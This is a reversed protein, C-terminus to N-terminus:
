TLVAGSGARPRSLAPHACVCPLLCWALARCTFSCLPLFPFSWLPLPLWVAGQWTSLGRASPVAQLHITAYLPAPPHCLSSCSSPAGKAVGCATPKTQWLQGTADGAADGLLM